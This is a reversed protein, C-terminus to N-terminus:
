STFIRSVSFYFKINIVLNADNVFLIKREGTTVSRETIMGLTMGIILRLSDEAVGIRDGISGVWTVDTASM